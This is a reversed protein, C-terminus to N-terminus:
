QTVGGLASLVKEPKFPIEDMRVGTANYIANAISRATCTTVGEGIGCAGYEGAGKWVELLIPEVKPFDAMTPIKYDIWNFNLPIGTADDYIIEETLTEGIGMCQGGIQQGEAGPAYMVTGCDSVVVLKVIEVEGTETDVEVDAFTAGFPVGTMEDPMLDSVTILM